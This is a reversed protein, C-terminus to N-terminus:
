LILWPQLILSQFTSCVELLLSNLGYGCWGERPLIFDCHASFGSFEDKWVCWPYITYLAYQSPDNRPESGSQLLRVGRISTTLSLLPRLNSDSQIATLPHPRHAILRVKNVERSADQVKVLEGCITTQLWEKHTCPTIAKCQRNIWQDLFCLRHIRVGAFPVGDFWDISSILRSFTYM